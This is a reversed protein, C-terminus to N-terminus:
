EAAASASPAARAADGVFLRWAALSSISAVAVLCAAAYKRWWPSRGVATMMENNLDMFESCRGVIEDFRAVRSGDDEDDDLLADYFDVFDRRRGSRGRGSGDIGCVSGFVSTAGEGFARALRPRLMAGGGVVLPGHLVFVAAAIEVDTAYRLRTAYRSAPNTTWSEVTNRWGPGLLHRLDSEYGSTFSYGMSTRVKVAFPSSSSSSSSSSSAGDDDDRATCLEEIRTELARTVVYFQGLLEAYCHADTMLGAALMATRLSRGLTHSSRIVDMCARFLGGSRGSDRVRDTARDERDDDARAPERDGDDDEAPPDSVVSSSPDMGNSPLPASDSTM